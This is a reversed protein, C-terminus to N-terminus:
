LVILGVTEVGYVQVQYIQTLFIYLHVLLDRTKEWIVELFSIIFPAEFTHRVIDKCGKLYAKKFCARWIIVFYFKARLHKELVRNLIIAFDYKQM